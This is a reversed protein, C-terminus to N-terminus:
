GDDDPNIDDFVGNDDDPVVMDPDEEVEEESEEDESGNDVMGLDDALVMRQYDPDMLNNLHHVEAHLGENWLEATEARYQLEHIQHRYGNEKAWAQDRQETRVELLHNMAQQVVANDHAQIQMLGMQEELELNRRQMHGRIGELEGKEM